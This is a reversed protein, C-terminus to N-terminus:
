KNFFRQLLSKKVPEQQIIQQQEQEQKNQEGTDLLAFAKTNLEQIYDNKAQLEVDKQEFKNRWYEKEEKLEKLQEKLMSILDTNDTPVTPSAVNTFGKNDVQNFDKSSAKITETRKERLYNIGKENLVYEGTISKEMYGSQILKSKQQYINQTTCDLMVSAEKVTFTNDSM